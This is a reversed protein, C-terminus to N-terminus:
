SNPYHEGFLEWAAEWDSPTYKSLISQADEGLLESLQLNVMFANHTLLRRNHSSGKEFAKILIGALEKYHETEGVIKFDGDQKNVLIASM